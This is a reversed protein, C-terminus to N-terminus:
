ELYLKDLAEESLGIFDEMSLSEGEGITVTQKEVDVHLIQHSNDPEEDWIGFGTEESEQGKVMECFVIRALYPGDNWRLHRSLARQLIAALDSGQWHTYLFVGPGKNTKFHINARDGM